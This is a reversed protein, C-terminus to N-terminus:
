KKLKLGTRVSRLISVNKGRMTISCRTQNWWQTFSMKARTWYSKMYSKKFQAAEHMKLIQSYSLLSRGSNQLLRMLAQQHCKLYKSPSWVIRKNHLNVQIITCLHRWVAEQEKSPINGNLLILLLVGDSHILPNNELRWCSYCVQDLHSHKLIIYMSPETYCQNQKPIELISIGTHRNIWWEPLHHKFHVGLSCNVCLLCFHDLKACCFNYSSKSLGPFTWM